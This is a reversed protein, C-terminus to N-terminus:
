PQFFPFFMSLVVVFWNMYTIFILNMICVILVRTASVRVALSFLDRSPSISLQILFLFFVVVLFLLFLWNEYVYKWKMVSDTIHGSFAYRFSNLWCVKLWFTIIRICPFVILLIRPFLLCPSLFFLKWAFIWKFFPTQELFIQKPPKKKMKWMSFFFCSMNSHSIEIKKWCKSTKM